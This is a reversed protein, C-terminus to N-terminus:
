IDLLRFGFKLYKFSWPGKLLAALKKITKPGKVQLIDLPVHFKSPSILIPRSPIQYRSNLTYEGM